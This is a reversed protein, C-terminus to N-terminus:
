IAQVLEYNKDKLLEYASNRVEIVELLEKKAKEIDTEIQLKLVEVDTNEKWTEVSGDENVYEHINKVEHLAQTLQQLVDTGYAAMNSALKYKTYEEWLGDMQIQLERKSLCGACFNTKQILKKDANSYNGKVDCDTASCKLSTQLYKRVNSLTDTLKSKKIKGWDKQEWVNGKDDEWVDGVNRKEENKIDSLSIQIDKEYEGSHVMNVLKRRTPHMFKTDFKKKM